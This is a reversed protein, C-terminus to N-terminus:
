RRLNSFIVAKSVFLKKVISIFTDVLDSKGKRTFFRISQKILVEDLFRMLLLSYHNVGSIKLYIKKYFMTLIYTFKGFRELLVFCWYTLLIM